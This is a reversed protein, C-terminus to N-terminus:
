AYIEKVRASRTLYLSWLVVVVLGIATGPLMEKIIASTMEVPLGGLMVISFSGLIRLAAGVFYGTQVQFLTESERRFIVWATFLWAAISAIMSFQYIIIANSLSPYEALIPRFAQETTWLINVGSLQLPGILVMLLILWPTFKKRPDHM